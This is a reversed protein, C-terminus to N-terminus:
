RNALEILATARPYTSQLRALADFVTLMLRENAGRRRARRARSSHARACASLSPRAAPYNLSASSSLARGCFGIASRARIPTSCSAPALESGFGNYSAQHFLLTADPEVCANRIGLKMTCASACVGAIVTRAPQLQRRACQWFLEPCQRRTFLPAAFLEGARPPPTMSALRAMRRQRSLRRRLGDWRRASRRGPRTEAPFFCVYCRDKHLGSRIRIDTIVRVFEGRWRKPGSRLQDLKILIAILGLCVLVYRRWLTAPNNAVGNILRLVGAAPLCSSAASRSVLTPSRYPFLAPWVM